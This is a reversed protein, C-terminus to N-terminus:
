SAPIQEESVRLAQVHVHVAQVPIGAREELTFRVRRVVGAAVETIRTGYEVVVYIDVIVGKEGERIDVGRRTGRQLSGALGDLFSRNSMGVVGYCEKVAEGVLAAVASPAVKIRGLDENSLTM